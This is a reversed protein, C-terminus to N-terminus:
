SKRFLDWLNLEKSKPKPGPKARDALSSKVLQIKGLDFGSKKNRKRWLKLQYNPARAM